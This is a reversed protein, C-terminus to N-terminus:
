GMLGAVIVLTIMFSVLGPVKDLFDAMKETVTNKVGTITEM